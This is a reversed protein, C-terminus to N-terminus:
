FFSLVGAKMLYNKGEWGKAAIAEIIRLLPMVLQDSRCRKIITPILNTDIVPGELEGQYHHSISWLSDAILEFSASFFSALLACLVMVAGQVKESEPLPDGRCLNALLM